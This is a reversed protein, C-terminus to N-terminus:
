LPGSVATQVLNAGDSVMTITYYKSATINVATAAKIPASYALDLGGLNAGNNYIVTITTGPPPAIPVFVGGSAYGCYINLQVTLTAPLTVTFVNGLRPDIFTDASTQNTYAGYNLGTAYLTLANVDGALYTGAIISGNTATINGSTTVIDGLTYVGPAKDVASTTPSVGDAIYTPKDTNYVTFVSDNPDIFGSLGSNADFVGVM